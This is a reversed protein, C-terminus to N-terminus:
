VTVLFEKSIFSRPGVKFYPGKKKKKKKLKQGLGLGSFSEKVRLAVKIHAGNKM